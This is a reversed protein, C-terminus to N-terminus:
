SNRMAANSAAGGTTVLATGAFVVATPLTWGLRESELKTIAYIASASVIAESVLVATKPLLNAQHYYLHGNSLAFKDDNCILVQYTLMAM